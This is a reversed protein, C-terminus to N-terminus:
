PKADKRELEERIISRIALLLSVCAMTATLLAMLGRIVASEGAPIFAIYSVCTSTFAVFAFAHASQSKRM